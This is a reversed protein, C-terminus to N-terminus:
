MSAIYSAYPQFPQELPQKFANEDPMSAAVGFCAHGKFYQRAGLQARARRVSGRPSRVRRSRSALLGARETYRTYAAHRTCTCKLKLHPQRAPRRCASSIPFGAIAACNACLATLSRHAYCVSNSYYPTCAITQSTSGALPTTPDIVYRHCGHMRMSRPTVRPGAAQAVMRLHPM